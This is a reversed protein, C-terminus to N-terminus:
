AQEREMIAAIANAKLALARLEDATLDVSGMGEYPPFAHEDTVRLNATLAGHAYTLKVEGGQWIKGLDTTTTTQVGDYREVIVM